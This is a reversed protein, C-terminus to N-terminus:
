RKCLSATTTVIGVGDWDAVACSTVLLNAIKRRKDGSFQMEGHSHKVSESHNLPNGPIERFAVITAFPTSIGSDAGSNRLRRCEDAPKPHLSCALKDVSDCGLLAM